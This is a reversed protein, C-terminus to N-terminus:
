KALLLRAVNQVHLFVQIFLNINEAHKLSATKKFALQVKEFLGMSILPEHRGKYLVNKYM